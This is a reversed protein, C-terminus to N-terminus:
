LKNTSLFTETGWYFISRIQSAGTPPSPVAGESVMQQVREFDKVQKLTQPNPDPSDASCICRNWAPPCICSSWVTLSLARYPPLSASHTLRSAPFLLVVKRLNTVHEQLGSPIGPLKTEGWSEVLRARERERERERVCVCERERGRERQSERERASPSFRASTPSTSWSATRSGRCSRRGVGPQWCAGTYDEYILIYKTTCSVPYNDRSCRRSERFGGLTM